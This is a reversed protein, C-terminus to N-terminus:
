RLKSRLAHAAANSPDKALATSLTRRAAEHDGLQLHADAIRVLLWADLTDSPVLAAYDLLARDAAPGRGRSELVRSLYLFASPEVPFRVTAQQLVQEARGLDGSLILARGLLTLAESSSEPGVVTNLAELAKNVEVRGGHGARQLWLRGLAVYTARDEPYRQAANALQGVARELNGARAYAFALARERAPAPQLAVLAEVHPLRADFRRL